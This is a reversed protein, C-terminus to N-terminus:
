YRLRADKVTNEIQRQFLNISDISVDTSLLWEFNNRLIPTGLSLILPATSKLSFNMNRLAASKLDVVKMMNFEM